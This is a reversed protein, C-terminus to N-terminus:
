YLLHYKCVKLNTPDHTEIIPSFCNCYCLCRSYSLIFLEFEARKGVQACAKISMLSNLFHRRCRGRCRRLDIIQNTSHPFIITSAARAARKKTCNKVFDASPLLSIKMNSTRVVACARLSLNKM